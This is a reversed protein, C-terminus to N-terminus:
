VHLVTDEVRVRGAERGSGAQGSRMETKRELDTMGSGQLKFSDSGYVMVDALFDNPGQPHRDAAGGSSRWMRGWSQRGDYQVRASM